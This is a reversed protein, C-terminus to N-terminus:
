RRVLITWPGARVGFPALDVTLNDEDVLTVRGSAVNQSTDASDYVEVVVYKSKLGHPVPVLDLDAPQVVKQFTGLVSAVLPNPSFQVPDIKGGGSETASIGGTGGYDITNTEIVAQDYAELELGATGPGADFVGIVAKGVSTVLRAHDRLVVRATQVGPDGGHFSFAVALSTADVTIRTTGSLTVLSTASGGEFPAVANAKVLVDLDRIELGVAAMNWGSNDTQIPTPNLGNGGTGILLLNDYYSLGPATMVCGPHFMITLPGRAASGVAQVEPWTKYVNGASFPIAPDFVIVNRPATAPLLGKIADLALQVNFANPPAPIYPPGVKTDDYFEGEAHDLPIDTSGPSTPAFGTAYVAAELANTSADHVLIFPTLGAGKICGPNGNIARTVVLAFFGAGSADVIPVAPALSNDFVGGLDSTVIGLAGPDVRYFPATSGALLRFGGGFGVAFIHPSSAVFVPTAIVGEFVLNEAVQRINRLKAGSMVTVTDGFGFGIVSDSAGLLRTLYRGDLDANAPIVCPANSTDFYLDCASSAAVVAAEVEPWTAYNPAATALGPRFIVNSNGATSGGGGGESALRKLLEAKPGIGWATLIQGLLASTLAM